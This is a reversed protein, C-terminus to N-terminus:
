ESNQWRKADKYDESRPEIWKSGSQRDERKWFIAETKLYDMMRDAALFANRRHRAAAAVHVITEGAPILGIRHWVDLGALEIESRIKTIQSTIAPWTLDPHHELFLAKVPDTENAGRVQGTFCVVAGAEPNALRLEDLLKGSKITGDILM